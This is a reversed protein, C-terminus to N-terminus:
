VHARGIKRFTSLVHASLRRRDAVSQPADSLALASRWRSLLNSLHEYTREDAARLSHEGAPREGVLCVRDAYAHRLVRLVSAGGVGPILAVGWGAGFRSHPLVIVVRDSEALPMAAFDGRPDSLYGGVAADEGRTWLTRGPLSGLRHRGALLVIDFDRSVVPATSVTALTPRAELEDTFLKAQEDLM